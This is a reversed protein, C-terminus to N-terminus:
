CMYFDRIYRITEIYNNDYRTIFVKLWPYLNNFVEDSGIGLIPIEKKYAEYLEICTGISTNLGNLNVVIIDSSKVKALDFKMIEEHSQYKMEEFNFYNVPNVCDLEIKYDDVITKIYKDFDIRWQNMQEYSLGSMKGALYIQLHKLLNNEKQETTM